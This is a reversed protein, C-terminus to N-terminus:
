GAAAYDDPSATYEDPQAWAPPPPFIRGVLEDVQEDTARKAEMAAAIAEGHKASLTLGVRLGERLLQMSVTRRFALDPPYEGAQVADIGLRGIAQADCMQIAVCAMPPAALAFGVNLRDEARALPQLVRDAVTGKLADELLVGAMPAQVEVCVSAAPSVPALIRGLMGYGRATFSELSVRPQPKGGRARGKSPKKAGSGDGLIRGVLRDATTQRSRAPRRVPRTEAPPDPAVAPGVYEGELDEPDPTDDGAHAAEYEAILEPALRGRDPVDRGSDRLWSRMETVTAM